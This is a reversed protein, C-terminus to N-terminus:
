LNNTKRVNDCIFLFAIRNDNPSLPLILLLFFTSCVVDCGWLIFTAGTEIKSQMLMKFCKHLRGHFFGKFLAFNTAKNNYNDSVCVATHAAM